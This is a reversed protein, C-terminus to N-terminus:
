ILSLSVAFNSGILTRYIAPPTGDYMCDIYKELCCRKWSYVQAEDDVGRRQRALLNVCPCIEKGLDVYLRDQYVFDLDIVRDLYIQFNEMADLITPQSPSTKFQLKTGKASFCLQPERFDGLGPTSKIM